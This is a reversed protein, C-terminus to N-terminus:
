KGLDSQQHDHKTMRKREFIRVSSPSLDLVFGSVQTQYEGGIKAWKESLDIHVIDAFISSLARNNLRIYGGQVTSCRISGEEGPSCPILVAFTKDNGMYVRIAPPCRLLKVLDPSVIVCSATISITPHRSVANVLQCESLNIEKM